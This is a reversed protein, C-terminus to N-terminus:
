KFALLLSLETSANNAVARWNADGLVDVACRKQRVAGQFRTSAAPPTGAKNTIALATLTVTVNGNRAKVVAQGSRAAFGAGSAGVATWKSCLLSASQGAVLAVFLLCWWFM